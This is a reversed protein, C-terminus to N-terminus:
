ATGGSYQPLTPLVFMGTLCVIVLLIVGTLLIGLVMNLCRKKYAYENIKQKICRASLTEEYTLNRGAYKKLKYLYEEDPLNCYSSLREPQFAKNTKKVKADYDSQGLLSIILVGFCLLAYCFVLLYMRVTQIDSGLNQVFLFAIISTIVTLLIPMFVKQSSLKDDVIKEMQCLTASMDKRSKQKRKIVTVSKSM